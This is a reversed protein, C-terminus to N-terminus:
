VPYKEGFRVVVIDAEKIFLKSRISNLGSAKQDKWFPKEEDGLIVSGCNDSNEHNDQPSFFEVPLKKEQALKKIDDRWSSHIEGSLYIKWIKM